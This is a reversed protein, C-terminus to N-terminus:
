HGFPFFSCVKGYDCSAESEKPQQTTYEKDLLTECQSTEGLQFRIWVRVIQVLTPSIEDWVTRNIVALTSTLIYKPLTHMDASHELQFRAKLSGGCSQCCRIHSTVLFIFLFFLISNIMAIWLLSFELPFFFFSVSKEKVRRRGRMRDRHSM